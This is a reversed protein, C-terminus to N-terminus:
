LVQEAIAWLQLSGGEPISEEAINNGEEDVMRAVLDTEAVGVLWVGLTSETPLLEGSTTGSGFTGLQSYLGGATKLALQVSVGVGAGVCGVRVAKTGKSIAFSIITAEAVAGSAPVADSGSGGGTTSGYIGSQTLGTSSSATGTASNDFSVGGGNAMDNATVGIINTGVVSAVASAMEGDTLLSTTDVWFTQSPDTPSFYITYDTGDFNLTLYGEM